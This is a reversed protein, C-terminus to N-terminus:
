YWLCSLSSSPSSACFEGVCRPLYAVVSTFWGVRMEMGIRWLHQLSLVAQLKFEGLVLDNSAPGPLVM